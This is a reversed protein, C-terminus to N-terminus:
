WPSAPVGHECGNGHQCTGCYLGYRKMADIEDSMRDFGEPYAEAFQAERRNREEFEAKLQTERSTDNNM